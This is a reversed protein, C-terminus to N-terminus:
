QKKVIRMNAISFDVDVAATPHFAMSFPAWKGAAINSFDWGASVLTTLELTVTCWLKQTDFSVSASPKWLYRVGDADVGGAMHFVAVSPVAGVTSMEFKLQYDQPSTM